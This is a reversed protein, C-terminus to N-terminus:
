ETTSRDFSPGAPAIPAGSDGGAATTKGGEDEAAVTLLGTARREVVYVFGGDAGDAGADDNGISPPCQLLSAPLLLISHAGILALPFPPRSDPGTHEAFTTRSYGRCLLGSSGWLQLACRVGRESERIQPIEPKERVGVVRSLFTKSPGLDSAFNWLTCCFRRIYFMETKESTNLRLALM